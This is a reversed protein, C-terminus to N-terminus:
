GGTGARPPRRGAPPVGRASRLAAGRGAGAGAGATGEARRAAAM